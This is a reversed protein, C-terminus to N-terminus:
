GVVDVKPVRLGTVSWLAGPVVVLVGDFERTTQNSILDLHQDGALVGDGHGPGPM